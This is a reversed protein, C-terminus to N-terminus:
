VIVGRELFYKRMQVRTRTLRVSVNKETMGMRAAIDAYPDSFWYRRLFIVRNELSLTDLFAEIIRVM